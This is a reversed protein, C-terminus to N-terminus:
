TWRELRKLVINYYHDLDIIKEFNEIEECDRNWLYQNIPADAFRVLGDDLKRKKFLCLGEKKSAFIRNVKTELLTGDETATGQYTSGSKLIYQFLHPKELNDLLTDSIDKNNVLKEVLAIDLIRANNNKFFADEAFRNVDGGKCIIKEGSVAIYNNVDKQVFLDFEKEELELSFDKEWSKYADIWRDDFDDSPIFAVGDTNINIITAFPAIRKCLDYLAIQGYICVSLCAMPNNLISFKAKLQGYVSNLITKLAEALIPDSKKVALRRELIKKYKDTAHGLVNLLVIIM